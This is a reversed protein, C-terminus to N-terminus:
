IVNFRKKLEKIIFLTAAKATQATTDVRIVRLKTSELFKDYENAISRIKSTRVKRETTFRSKLVNYDAHVYILVTNLDRFKIDLKHLMKRNTKRKYVTSYVYESPYARDLIISYKTKYLFDHFITQSIETEMYFPLSLNHPSSGKYIPIKLLRSLEYGITTKGARDVGELILVLPQKRM